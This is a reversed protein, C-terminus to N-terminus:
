CRFFFYFFFGQFQFVHFFMKLSFLDFLNDNYRLFQHTDNRLLVLWPAWPSCLTIFVTAFQINNLITDNFLYVKQFVFSIYRLLSDCTHKRIDIKGIKISGQNVDWFRAILNAITTKGCGSKGILATMTGEPISFSVNNIM